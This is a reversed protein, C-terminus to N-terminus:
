PRVVLSFTVVEHKKLPGDLIAHAGLTLDFKQLALRSGSSLMENLSLEAGAVRQFPGRSQGSNWLVTGEAYIRFVSGLEGRWRLFHDGTAQWAPLAAQGVHNVELSRGVLPSALGGLRFSESANGSTRGAETKFTLHSWPNLYRLALSGRLADWSHGSNGLDTSGSLWQGNLNVQFGQQGRAWLDTGGFRLGAVTRKWETAKGPLTTKPLSTDKEWALVPSVWWPHEGLNERVFAIEGGIRERDRGEPRQYRQASPKERALFLAVSPKWSWGGYAFGAMAGSPGGSEGQSLVAQWAFRDLLDTGGLGMQFSEGSPSSTFGGTPLNWINELSRYPNSSLLPSPAPSPQPLTGAEIAPAEIAATSLLRPEPVQVPVTLAPQTLDLKRVQNGRADLLTYYLEKGDPSPAPHTAASATRTLQQIEGFGTATIPVRVINFTGELACSVYLSTKAQDVIARGYPQGPLPVERGQYELIWRGKRSIPQIFTSHEAPTSALHQDLSGDLHWLATQRTLVGEDDRRKLMVQVTQDNIWVARHPVRFDIMPLQHTLKHAKFEPPADELENPDEEKKKAAEKGTEKGAEKAVPKAEEKLDWIRLGPNKPDGIFALLRKGDPSLELDNLPANTRLWLEGERLGQAKTRTEWELSDHALEARFRDYGDKASFGFTAQFSAEFNRHKRSCLQKWFRKLIDPTSPCQRELWELYASGVLYSTTRGLYGDASMAEYAPLKGQVSWQRLIAARTISHPRGSGTLKGEALTAYGETVWTPAKLTIPGLPMQSLRNLFGPHNQPRTMHHIHTFEHAILEETWDSLADSLQDSQPPTHWLIVHPQQMWPFAMGNADQQPDLLIVQVPVPSEYGVLKVVEAHIGEVRSAVDQAWDAFVPPYHIRYHATRITRWAANPAQRAPAALAPVGLLISTTLAPLLHRRSM